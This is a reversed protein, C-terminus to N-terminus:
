ANGIQLQSRMRKARRRFGYFMLGMGILTLVGGIRLVNTIAVSYKSSAPDYHYCFLLVQDSLSGIKRGSADMLGYKMDSPAFEVGYFYRSLKGDPTLMMIGSAHAFQKSATDYTYRFGVEKTLQEITREDTTLFHYAAVNQEQHYSSLYSDRKKRALDSTETPDISVSVVDFDKGPTFPLTKMSGFVGNMVMTCLNPCGYYAMVLIVPRKGFYAGLTTWNGAEDRMPLSLTVQEGLHQDIGINKVAKPLGPDVQQGQVEGKFFPSNGAFAPGSVLLLLICMVFRSASRYDFTLRM